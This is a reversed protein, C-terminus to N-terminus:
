FTGLRRPTTAAYIKKLNTSDVCQHILLQAKCYKKKLYKHASNHADTAYVKLEQVGSKVIGM